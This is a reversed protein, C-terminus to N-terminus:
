RYEYVKQGAFYTMQVRTDSIQRPDISLLNHNLVIFDASKGVTVSGTRSEARLAKAGNITFIKLAEEIGVAENAWLTENGDTFPDARTILAEMGPWPNLSPVAAPWDSGAAIEAGAQLLTRTPWYFEGREGVATLVSDMIPSPFWIYPCFDPIANLEAFRALDAPDVYGAHALEHRLGSRGNQQRAQEIADLTVRVSRDGATHIKVTFGAADLAVLDKTLLEPEIHLPGRHREGGAESATYPSLMAATRAATPVGDLFIKIFRTDFNNAQYQDRLALYNSIELAAERHGYPTVMAAAVHANLGENEAIAKFAALENEGIATAKLGTIGFSNALKIAHAAAARYQEPTWSLEDKLFGFAEVMIGDPRGSADNAMSVGKPLDEPGDVGLLELAKSNLWANHYADDVLAVAKDGSFQDLWQRPSGIDHDVFFDSAYQGGRIWTADPQEVVCQRIAAAIDEPTATFPFSCEFLEKTGGEVPHLHTDNIGPMLMAENLDILETTAGVFVQAGEDSGVFVYRGDRIALASAQAQAQDMTVVTANVIVTDAAVQAPASPPQQCAGLILTSTFCITPLTNKIM